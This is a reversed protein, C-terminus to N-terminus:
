EEYTILVVVANGNISSSAGAICYIHVNTADIFFDFEHNAVSTFNPPIRNGSDNSVLAQVGVIKSQNLGHAITASAGVAPSTGTLKKMKIKPAGGGLTTFGDIETNGANDVRFKPEDGAVGALFDLFYINEWGAIDTETLTIQLGDYFEGGVFPTGDNLVTNVSLGRVAGANTVTGGTVVVQSGATGFNRVNLAKLGDVVLAVQDGAPFYLGTRRESSSAAIAVKESTGAGVFTQSNQTDVTFVDGGGDKRVQLLKLHNGDLILQGQATIGGVLLNGSGIDLDGAANLKLGGGGHGWPAGGFM